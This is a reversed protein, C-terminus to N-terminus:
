IAIKKKWTPSETDEIRVSVRRTIENRVHDERLREFQEFRRREIKSTSRSFNSFSFFFFFSYSDHLRSWNKKLGGTSIEDSYKGFNRSEMILLRSATFEIQLKLYSVTPRLQKWTFRVSIIFLIVIIIINNIVYPQTILKKYQAVSSSIM